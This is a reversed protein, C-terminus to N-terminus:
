YASQRSAVRSAEFGHGSASDVCTIGRPVDSPPVECSVSGVSVTNGYGVLEGLGRPLEAGSEIRGPAGAEFAFTEGISEVTCAAGTASLRCSVNGSPAHFSRAPESEAPPPATATTAPAPASNGDARHDVRHKLARVQKQLSRVRDQEHAKEEGARQAAHLEAASLTATTSSDSSGGGCAALLVAATATAALGAAIRAGAARRHHRVIPSL